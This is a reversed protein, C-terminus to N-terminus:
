DEEDRGCEFVLCMKWPKKGKRIVKVYPTGCDDCVEDTSEIKGYGPLPYTNECDPYGECGVFRSDGSTRIVLDEGCEQCTGLTNQKKRTADLAAVLEEGVASEHQKFENLIGTLEEEAESLVTDPAADGTRIREMAEEFERTLDPSLIRPCNEELASVVGEGLDTVHIPDNDIYNRNYLASVTNSRTAKTGIGVDEMKNVLSSQTYRKPPQTEKEVLELEDQPITEGEEAAPITEEKIRVYPEYLRHWNKEVTRKAKAEFIHNNVDLSIKVSQRIAPDGFTAFFRKVILDYVNKQKKSLNKPKLGTPHIAPHADDTKKGQNPYIKDKGLVAKAKDEYVNRKKLKNLISKYGIKPPLKQSSTRPYSIVGQEYLQQALQQTQKPRYNFQKYAETQLDTLNFPYPQWHKYTRKEVDVVDGDHGQCADHIQTATDEEWIKEEEYQASFDGPGQFFLQWYPDPEFEQIARERDVLLKLTPGQVRGTSMVQFRNQTKVASMLARSLNIGFYWDLKHRTLGAYTQGKDFGELNQFAEQLDDQTLTSFHMRKINDLNVGCAFRLMNAGITSGEVDFDCANVYVDARDKLEKVVDVYNKMYANDEDVEYSPVWEIDFVPYEHGSTTQELTYVHGVASAILVRGQKTDVEHYSVKGKKTTDPNGLANALKRAVKPKEAILLYTM